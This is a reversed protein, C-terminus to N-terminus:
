PGAVFDRFLQNNTFFDAFWNVLSVLQNWAWDAVAGLDVGFMYVLAALLGLVFLVEILNALAGASDPHRNM